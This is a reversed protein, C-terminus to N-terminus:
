RRVEMTRYRRATATWHVLAHAFRLLARSFARVEEPWSPGRAIGDALFEFTMLEAECLAGVRAAASDPTLDEHVTLSRLLNKGNGAASEGQASYLDNVWCVVHNFRMLVDVVQPHGYVEDSIDLGHALETWGAACLVAGDRDRHFLYEPLTPVTEGATSAELYDLSAYLYSRFHAAYRARWAPTTLAATEDWLVAFVRVLPDAPGTHGTGGTKGTSETKRCARGDASGHTPRPAELVDTLARVTQRAGAPPRGIWQDDFRDDLIWTLMLWKAAAALGPGCPADGWARVILDVHGQALFTRPSGGLVGTATLWAEVRKGITGADPHPSPSPVAGLFFPTHPSSGDSPGDSGGSENLLVQKASEDPGAAGHTRSYPSADRGV